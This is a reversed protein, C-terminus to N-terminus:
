VHARGIQHSAIICGCTAVGSGIAPAYAIIKKKRDTEKDAKRSCRVSLWSTVGVGVTGISTLVLRLTKSNM